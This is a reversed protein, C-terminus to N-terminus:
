LSRAVRFGLDGYRQQPQNVRRAASRANDPESPYSGGRSVAMTCQPLRYASGDTPVGFYGTDLCDLVWESVNGHMDYLGFANPPFSGVPVTRGFIGLINADDSIIAEGTHWPTETGARAAYEWEAESLLHYRQGTKESLWTVYHYADEFNVGIVPRRGRGWGSDGARQPCGKAAVCADYQEFTVEHRGVAFPHAFTVPHRPGENSGRGEEESPSGMFFRGAPLVVMEPCVDDCDRLVTGAAHRDATPTATTSATTPQWDARMWPKMTFGAPALGRTLQTPQQKIQLSYPGKKANWSAAILAYHGGAAVFKLKQAHSWGSKSIGVQPYTDSQKVAPCPGIWVEILPNLTSGDMTVEWTQGPETDLYYCDYFNGKATKSSNDDLEGNIVTSDRIEQLSQAASPTAFAALLLTATWRIGPRPLNMRLNEFSPALHHSARAHTDADHQAPKMRTARLHSNVM